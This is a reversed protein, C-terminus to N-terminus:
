DAKELKKQKLLYAFLISAMLPFVSAILMGTKMGIQEPTLGASSVFVAINPNSIVADTVIGVLQPGVSGGLDGGAAMLAFLAVGASPFKSSAVILSGPWLMSVCLGTLACAFLGVLPVNAFAAILYCVFAFVAGTFLVLNINKGRKAYLTRGIGLMVAFLAVGAVDGWVKPINMAQELYSSSWQSMINESAGGLFICLVCLILGKNFILKKPGSSNSHDNQLNPIKAKAFLFWSTLPILTWILALWHWSGKGFVLLFLTSFVVVGVVGWAYSSHLKSMEREPEPSPIAAIIPSILVEGLGASMAFIVTGIVLGVYATSPFILPYISYILLGFVTIAPMSKVIKSINMKHSFFSFVLDIFLQTCFNILVLLGLLSYSIGYLSRFTVFLLPSFASVVSMSINATYCAYKLWKTNESM